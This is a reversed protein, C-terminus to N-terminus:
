NITNLTYWFDASYAAVAMGQQLLPKDALNDGLGNVQRTYLFIYNEVEEITDLQELTKFFILLVTRSTTSFPGFTIIRNVLTTYYASDTAYNSPLMWGTVSKYQNLTYPYGDTLLSDYYVRFYSDNEVANALLLQNDVDHYEVTGGGTVGGGVLTQRIKPTLKALQQNHFQGTYIYPNAQITAPLVHISVPLSGARTLNRKLASTADATVVFNEAAKISGAAAGAVGGVIAGATTGGTLQLGQLAGSVGGIIDSGIIKLIKWFKGKAAPHQSKEALVKASIAEFGRLIEAEDYAVAAPPTQVAPADNKKCSFLIAVFLVSLLVRKM